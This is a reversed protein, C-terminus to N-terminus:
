MNMDMKYTKQRRSILKRYFLGRWGKADYLTFDNQRKRLIVEINMFDEDSNQRGQSNLVYCSLKKPM